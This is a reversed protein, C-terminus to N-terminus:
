SSILYQIFTTIKSRNFHILFYRLQYRANSVETSESRRKQKNISQM